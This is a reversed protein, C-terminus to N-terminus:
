CIVARTEAQVEPQCPANLWDHLFRQLDDTDIVNNGDLDLFAPDIGGLLSEPTSFAQTFAIVDREDITDDRNVDAPCFYKARWHEM